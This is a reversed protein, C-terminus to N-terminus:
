RCRAAAKSTTSPDTSKACTNGVQVRAAAAPASVQAADQTVVQTAFMPTLEPVTPTQFEVAWSKRPSSLSASVCASTGCGLQSAVGPLGLAADGKYLISAFKEESGDYPEDELAGLQDYVSCNLACAQEANLEMTDDSCALCSCAALCASTCTIGQNSAAVGCATLPRDTSSSISTVPTTPAKFVGNAGFDLYAHAITASSEVEVHVSFSYEGTRIASVGMIRPANAGPTPIPATAPQARPLYLGTSGIAAANSPIEFSEEEEAEDGGGCAVAALGALSLVVLWSHIRRM